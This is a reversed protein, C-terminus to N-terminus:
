SISQLESTELCRGKISNVTKNEVFSQSSASRSLIHGSNGVVSKCWNYIIEHFSGKRLRTLSKRKEVGHILPSYISHLRCISNFQLHERAVNVNYWIWKPYPVFDARIPRKNVSVAIRVPKPSGIRALKTGAGSAPVTKSGYRDWTTDVRHSCTSRNRKRIPSAM